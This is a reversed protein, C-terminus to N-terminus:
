RASVSWQSTTAPGRSNNPSSRSNGHVRSGYSTSTTPASVMVHSITSAGHVLRDVILDNFRSCAIAYRGPTATLNGNFTTM